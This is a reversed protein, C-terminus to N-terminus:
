RAAREDSAAKIFISGAGTRLFLTKGGGNLSGLLRERSNRNGSIPLDSSVTGISSQADIDYGAQPPIAVAIEGASTELKVNTVASLAANISGGATKGNLPGAINSLRLQGGSSSIDARGAFDRVWIRGGATEADLSGKGGTSDIRGGSTQIKLAGDCETLRVQGGSTKADVPGHTRTFKLKGGATNAHLEGSLESVEIAGGGTHLETNFNKPLQVSYHADMRTHNENWHWERNTRARITIVNNEQSITIPSAEVYEKERAKDPIEIIRRANIAVTKDDPGGTVEITGFDVDVLLKGGPGADLHRQVIEQSTALATIAGGVLMLLIFIFRPIMLYIPNTPYSNAHTTGNGCNM